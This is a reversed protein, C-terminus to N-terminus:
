AEYKTGDYEYTYAPKSFSSVAAKFSVIGVVGWIGIVMVAFITATIIRNAKKSLGFKKLQERCYIGGIVILWITVAIGIGVYILIKGGISAMMFVLGISTIFSALYQFNFRGSSEVFIGEEAKKLAKKKWGFYATFEVIVLVLALLSCIGSLMLFDNALVDITDFLFGSFVNIVNLLLVIALVIYSPIFIKKMTKHINNVKTISDTELPTTYKDESCFVQIEGASAVYEWGSYECLDMYSEQEKSPKLDYASAKKFYTVSFRIDKPEIKRFQIFIGKFKELMWGEKAQKELYREIGTYDYM